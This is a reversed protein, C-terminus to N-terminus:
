KALRVLFEPVLEQSRLYYQASTATAEGVRITIGEPLAQFADEDTSDDGLYLALADPKGSAQEIWRVAMGKDWDVRPRIEFVKRGQTVEFPNEDFVVAVDVAQRITDLSGAAARRFHVRRQVPM